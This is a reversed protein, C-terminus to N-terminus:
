QPHRQQFGDNRPVFDQSESRAVEDHRRLDADMVKQAYVFAHIGVKTPMVLAVAALM